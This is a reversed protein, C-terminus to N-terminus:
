MKLARHLVYEIKVPYQNQLYVKVVIQYHRPLEGSPQRLHRVLDAAYDPQTAYQVAALTAGTWNAGFIFVEGRGHLGPLRSILAHTENDRDTPRVQDPFFPPEGQRPKLNLIRDAVSDVVLQQEASIDKLQPV